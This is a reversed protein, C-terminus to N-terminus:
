ADTITYRLILSFGPMDATAGQIVSAWLHEAATLVKDTGDLAGLDEYDNTPPQTGTNYTKTIITNSADDNVAIAVTNADDVGAPAGETLIGISVLTVARPHVFIERHAIDAGAALDEVRIIAVHEAQAANLKAATVAANNLKATEVALAGLKAATVAGPQLFSTGAAQVMNLGPMFVVTGSAGVTKVIGVVQVIQDAGTPATDTWGGPTTASLYLKDGVALGSTDGALVAWEAAEGTAGDAIGALLVHTAAKAPDDADALTIEPSEDGANYGSIYVLDAADMAAGTANHVKLRASSAELVRFMSLGRYDTIDVFDYYGTLGAVSATGTAITALRIHPCMEAVPFCTPNCGLVGAATLYIYNTADNTLAQGAAGAYSVVTQGNPYRGARVGYKLEGADDKYVELGTPITLAVGVRWFWKAIHTGWNQVDWGPIKLGSGTPQETGLMASLISDSPYLEAM